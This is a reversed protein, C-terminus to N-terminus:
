KGFAKPWNKGWPPWKLAWPFAWWSWISTRVQYKLLGMQAMWKGPQNLQPSLSPQIWTPHQENENPVSPDLLRLRLTVIILLGIFWYYFNSKKRINLWCAAATCFNAESVFLFCVWFCGHQGQVKEVNCSCPEYFNCVVSSNLLIVFVSTINALSWCGGCVDKVPLLSIFCFSDFDFGFVCQKVTHLSVTVAVSEGGVTEQAPPPGMHQQHGYKQVVQVM